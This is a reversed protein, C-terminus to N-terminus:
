IWERNISLLYSYPNERLFHKKDVSYSVASAMVSMGFSSFLTLEVPMGLIAMPIGTASASLLSVKLCTETFWKIHSSKLAAKFDNYAPIFENNYLDYIEQGIVNIPKDGDFNQTLKTLQTRFRGLEDRHHNKFAIIDVFSTDPSISLGKIIFNLLMGQELQHDRPRRNPFRDESRITTQNRWKVTNGMGFYPNNDTVMGLSYKECLKNALAIMYTDVFEKDFHYIGQKDLASNFCQIKERIRWSMKDSWIERYRHEQSLCSVQAFEPSFLLDLIDEEIGVVSEDNSNVYLPRLFEIDALYQTDPQKYPHALSEPVITLISDWFLIATKLWDTNEIDITPYYLANSFAPRM